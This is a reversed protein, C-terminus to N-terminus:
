LEAEKQKCLSCNPAPVFHRDHNVERGLQKKLGYKSHAPKTDDSYEARKKKKNKM